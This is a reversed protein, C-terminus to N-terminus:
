HAQRIRTTANHTGGSHLTQSRKRKVRRASRGFGSVPPLVVASPDPLRPLLRPGRWAALGLLAGHCDSRAGPCVPVPATLPPIACGSARPTRDARCDAACNLCLGAHRTTRRTQRSTTHPRPRIAQPVRRRIRVRRPLLTGTWHSRSPGVAPGPGHDHPGERDSWSSPGLRPM